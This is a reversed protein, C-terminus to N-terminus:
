RMKKILKKWSFHMLWAAGTLVLLFFPLAVVTQSVEQNNLTVQVHYVGVMFPPRHRFQTFLTEVKEPDLEGDSDLYEPSFLTGRVLRSSQALVFDPYFIYEAIKQRFVNQITARGQILDATSGKNEALLEFQIGSFSDILKPLHFSKLEIQGQNDTKEGIYVILNSVITGSVSSRSAPSLHDVPASVNPLTRANILIALPYEKEPSIESVDIQLTISHTRNPALEFPEGFQLDPNANRNFIKGPQLVPQGTKGDAKFDTINVSIEVSEQGHNKIVLTHKLYDSPKVAVYAVPPNVSLALSANSPLVIQNINETATSTPTVELSPESEKVYDSSQVDEFQNLNDNQTLQTTQTAFALPQSFHCSHNNVSNLLTFSLALLLLKQGM